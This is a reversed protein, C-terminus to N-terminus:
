DDVPKAAAASKRLSMAQVITNQLKILEESLERPGFETVTITKCLDDSKDVAEDMKAFNYEGAGKRLKNAQAITTELKVLRDVLDFKADLVHPEELKIADNDRAVISAKAQASTVIMAQDGALRAQAAKVAREFQQVKAFGQSALNQMSYIRRTILDLDKAPTVTRAIVNVMKPEDANAADIEAQTRTDHAPEADDPPPTLEANTEVKQVIAPAAAIPPKQPEPKYYFKFYVGAGGGLIALFLMLKTAPSLIPGQPFDKRIRSEHLMRDYDHM